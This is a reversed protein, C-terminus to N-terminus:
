EIKINLTSQLSLYYYIRIRYQKVNPM